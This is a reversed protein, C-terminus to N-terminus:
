VESLKSVIEQERSELGPMIESLYDYESDIQTKTQILKEFISENRDLKAKYVILAQFRAKKYQLQQLERELFFRKIPNM